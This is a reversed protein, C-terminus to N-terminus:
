RREDPAVRQCLLGGDPRVPEGLQAQEALPTGAARGELKDYLDIAKSYQLNASQERAQDYIEQPSLKATPDIPKSSCAVLALVLALPLVVSLRLRRM